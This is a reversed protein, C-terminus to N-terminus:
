ATTTATPVAMTKPKTGAHCAVRPVSCSSRFSPVRPLLPARDSARLVNTMVWILRAITDSTPAANNTRVNMLRSSYGTPNVGVGSIVSRTVSVPSSNAASPARARQTRSMTSRISRWLPTRLTNAEPRTGSFPPPPPPRRSISPAGNSIPRSGLEDTTPTVGPNKRVSPAGSRVPSSKVGACAQDVVGTAM